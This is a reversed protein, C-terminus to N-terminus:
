RQAGPGCGAGLRGTRAPTQVAAPLMRNRVADFWLALPVHEDLDSMVAYSLVPKRALREGPNGTVEWGEFWFVDPEATRLSYRLFDIWNGVVVTMMDLLM